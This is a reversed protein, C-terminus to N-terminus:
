TFSGSLGTLPAVSTCRSLQIVWPAQSVLAVDHMTVFLQVLGLPCPFADSYNLVGGRSFPRNVLRYHCDSVQCAVTICMTLLCLFLICDDSLWAVCRVSLEFNEFWVVVLLWRVPLETTPWQSWSMEYDWLLGYFVESLSSVFNVFMTLLSCM